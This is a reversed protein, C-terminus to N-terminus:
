SIGSDLRDSALPQRVFLAAAYRAKSVPLGLGYVGVVDLLLTIGVALPRLWAPVRVLLARDLWNIPQAIVVQWGAEEMGRVLVPWSLHTKYDLDSQWAPAPNQVNEVVLFWNTLDRIQAAAVKWNKM